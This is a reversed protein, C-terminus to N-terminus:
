PSPAAGSALDMRRQVRAAQDTEGASLALQRQVGLWALLARRWGQHSATEVALTVEDTSLRGAKFLAGAAVLQALPDPLAALTVGPAASLVARHQPPLQQAALDQWRGNLYAAYARAEPGADQALAQYTACDDFVLSAARVACRTLEARALLDPRGTRSLEDRARALAQEALRTNGSLEASTYTNLAAFTQGQWDPPVPQSACGSLLGACLALLRTRAGPTRAPRSM